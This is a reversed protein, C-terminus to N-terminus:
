RNTPESRPLKTATYSSAWPSGSSTCTSGAGSPGSPKCAMGERPRSTTEPSSSVGGKPTRELTM